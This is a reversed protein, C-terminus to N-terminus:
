SGLGNPSSAPAIPCTTSPTSAFPRTSPRRTSLCSAAAMRRDFRRAISKRTLVQGIGVVSAGAREAIRLSPGGSGCAIDLLNSEPGLALGEIFHELEDATQWGNQGYDEGFAERRVAQVVAERFNGYQSGYYMGALLILSSEPPLGVAFLLPILMAIANIPGIGPLMGVVTGVFVGGFALGLNLPQLAVGFGSALHGLAEM